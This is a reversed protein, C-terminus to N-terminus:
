NRAYEIVEIEQSKSRIQKVLQLIEKQAAEVDSLRMPGMAELDDQLLGAARESVNKLVKKKIEDSALKLSCTLNQNDILRLLTQMEHDDIKIIDEFDSIVNQIEALIEDQIFGDLKSIVTRSIAELKAIRYIVNAREEESFISLVEIKKVPTLYALILATTQPHEKVLFHYLDQSDLKELQHFPYRSKYCEDKEIHNQQDEDLRQLRADSIQGYFVDLAENVVSRPTETTQSMANRLLQVDNEPIEKFIEARIEDGLASLVIASKELGSMRYFCDLSM